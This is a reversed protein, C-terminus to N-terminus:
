CGATSQNTLILFNCYNTQWVETKCEYKMVKSTMNVCLATDDQFAAVKLLCREKDRHSFLQCDQETEPEILVTHKEPVLNSWDLYQVALIILFTLFIVAVICLVIIIWHKDSERDVVYGIAKEYAEQRYYARFAADIEHMTYGAETLKKKILEEPFEKQLETTIYSLLPNMVRRQITAYIFM